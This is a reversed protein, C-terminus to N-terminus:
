KVSRVPRVCGDSDVGDWGVSGDNGDVRWAGESGDEDEFKDGTWIWYQKNSFIPDIYLDNRKNSELLSAAEELTPLRWDDYGAYGEESNLDEVWEKAKNWKMYEDAGSQHWMLGTANDVVVKDGRITELNYNHNITSHGYFGWDEKERISVNPMSHAESLSLKKYSSRLTIIRPKSLEEEDPGIEGLLHPYKDRIQKMLRLQSLGLEAECLTKVRSLQNITFGIAGSLDAGNLKANSLNAAGLGAGNLKANSLNTDSLDAGSLIAGSLDAGRLNAGNLNARSLNAHSLDAKEGEEEDTDIWKKHEQLIKSLERATIERM